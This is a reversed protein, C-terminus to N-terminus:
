SNDTVSSRGNHLISITHSLLVLSRVVCGGCSRCWSPARYTVAHNPVEDNSHLGPIRNYIATNFECLYTYVCVGCVCVCVCVCVHARVSARVYAHVCARVFTCVCVHACMYTIYIYIYICARISVYM